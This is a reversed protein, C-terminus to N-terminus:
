HWCLLLLNDYRVGFDADSSAGNDDDEFLKRTDDYFDGVESRAFYLM